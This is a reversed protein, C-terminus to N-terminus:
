LLGLREFQESPVGEDRMLHILLDKMKKEIEPAKGYINNNQDPDEKRDFLLNPYRFNNKVPIKWVPCDVGPIFKGGIADPAPHLMLATYMYLPGGESGCCFTYDKNTITAGCGFTGYVVAERHNRKEGKILPILSKGHPSDIEKAGLIELITPYIDVATTFTDIRRGNGAFDPHWIMLPIHSNLDYHPHQKGFRQKEGLEHGHDATIIVATNDWLNYKDMKEFIKGLWKDVMTVRGYYQARIFELEKSNVQQWYEEVHGHFGTQYPPWCNYDDKIDDTYMSRYPEPVYFPEHVDFSEVWLLFKEKDHNRDLWDAAKSMVQPAFFDEESKFDKINRYFKIGQGPRWREIAKVWQPLEELTDTRWYDLENGRIMEVGDFFEMYGHAGYEWYHYHDTIMATIAGAKKAEQAVPKDFPELPGWPRWFFEKRGTMLERRAPMCPASGIFHNDFVLSRQAFRDLNPTKVFKNGYPGLCNLNLSDILIMIVNM